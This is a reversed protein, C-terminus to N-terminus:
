RDATWNKPGLNPDIVLLIFVNSLM